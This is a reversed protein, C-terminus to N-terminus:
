DDLIKVRYASCRVKKKNQFLSVYQQTLKKIVRALSPILYSKYFILMAWDSAKM